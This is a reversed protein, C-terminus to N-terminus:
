PYPPVPFIYMQFVSALESLASLLITIITAELLMTERSNGPLLVACEFNLIGIGTKSSEFLDFSLVIKPPLTMTKPPSKRCIRGTM